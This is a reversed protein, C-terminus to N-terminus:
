THSSNLRTSKRDTTVVHCLDITERFGTHGYVPDDFDFIKLGQFERLCKLSFEDIRKQIILVHAKPNYGISSEFENSYFTNISENPYYVRIRSSAANKVQDYAPIFSIITKNKM